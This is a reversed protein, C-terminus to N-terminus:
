NDFDSAFDLVGSKLEDLGEISSITHELKYFVKRHKATNQKYKQNDKKLRENEEKTKKEQFALEFATKELDKYSRKLNKYKTKTAAIRTDQEAVRERLTRESSELLLLYHAAQNKEDSEENREDLLKCYKRQQEVNLQKPQKLAALEEFILEFTAKLDSEGVGEM